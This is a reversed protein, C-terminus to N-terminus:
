ATVVQRAPRPFYNTPILAFTIAVVLGVYPVLQAVYWWPSLGTDRIRKISVIIGSWIVPIYSVLLMILLVNKDTELEKASIITSIVIFGYLMMMGFYSWYQRRNVRGGINWFFTDFFNNFFPNANMPIEVIPSHNPVM